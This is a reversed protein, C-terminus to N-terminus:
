NLSKRYNYMCYVYSHVQTNRTYGYGLFREDHQPADDGSVYFPEYFFQFDAPVPHSVHLVSDNQVREYSVVLLSLLYLVHVYTTSIVLVQAM